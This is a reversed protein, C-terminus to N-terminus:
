AAPVSLLALARVSFRSGGRPSAKKRGLNTEDFSLRTCAPWPSARPYRLTKGTPYVTKARSGSYNGGGELKPRTEVHMYHQVLPVPSLHESSMSLEAGHMPAAAAIDM